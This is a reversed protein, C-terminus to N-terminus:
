MDLHYMEVIEDITLNRQVLLHRSYVEVLTENQPFSVTDIVEFSDLVRVMLYQTMGGAANEYPEQLDYFEKVKKKASELDESYVLVVLEELTKESDIDPTSQYECLIKLSWLQDM